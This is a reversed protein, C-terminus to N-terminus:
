PLFNPLFFMDSQPRDGYYSDSIVDFIFPLYTNKLTASIRLFFIRISFIANYRIRYPYM